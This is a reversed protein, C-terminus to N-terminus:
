GAEDPKVKGTRIDELFQRKHPPLFQSLDAAVPTVIEPKIDKHRLVAVTRNRWVGSYLCKESLRRYFHHILFGDGVYVAAHNAVPSHIAMLFGDGIQYGRPHCDIEQFGEERFHDMYLNLGQDWWLDPRAYDKLHISFNDRYFDRVLEYCDRTGHEFPLGLLHDYKILM